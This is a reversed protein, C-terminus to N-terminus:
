WHRYLMPFWLHQIPSCQQRYHSHNAPALQKTLTQPTPLGFPFLPLLLQQQASTTYITQITQQHLCFTHFCLYQVPISQHMHDSHNAPTLQKALTKPTPLDLPHISLQSNSWQWWPTYLRFPKRTDCYTPMISNCTIATRWPVHLIWQCPYMSSTVRVHYENILPM